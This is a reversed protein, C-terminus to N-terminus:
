KTMLDYKSLDCAWFLHFITFNCSVLIFVACFRWFTVPDRFGFRLTCDGAVAAGDCDSM